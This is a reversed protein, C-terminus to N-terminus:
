GCEGKSILSELQAKNEEQRMHDVLISGAAKFETRRRWIECLIEKALRRAIDDQDLMPSVDFSPPPRNYSSGATGTEVRLTVSMPNEGRKCGDSTRVEGHILAIGHTSAMGANRLKNLIKIRKKRWQDMEDKSGALELCILDQAVLEDASDPLLDHFKPFTLYEEAIYYNTLEPLRDLKRLHDLFHQGMVNKTCEERQIDTDELFWQTMLRSDPGLCWSIIRPTPFTGRWSKSIINSVVQGALQVRRTGSASAFDGLFAPEEGSVFPFDESVDSPNGPLHTPRLQLEEAYTRGAVKDVQRDVSVNYLRWRLSRPGDVPKPLEILLLYKHEGENARSIPLLGRIKPNAKLYGSIPVLEPNEGDNNAWGTTESPYGKTWLLDQDGERPVFAVAESPVFARFILATQANSRWARLKGPFTRDIAKAIKEIAALQICDAKTPAHAGRPTQIEGGFAEQDTGCRKRDDPLQDEMAANSANEFGAVILVSLVQNGQKRIWLSDDPLETSLYAEARRILRILARSTGGDLKHIMAVVDGDQDVVASGSEGYTTTRDLECNNSRGGLECNREFLKVPLMSSEVPIYPNQRMAEFNQFSTRYLAAETKYLRSADVLRLGDPREVNPDDLKLLAYDNRDGAARSGPTLRFWRHTTTSEAHEDNTPPAIAGLVCATDFLDGFFLRHKFTHKATLVFGNERLFFGTALIVKRKDVAADYKCREDNPIGALVKILVTNRRVRDEVNPRLGSDAIAPEWAFSLSVAFAGAACALGVGRRGRIGRVANSLSRLLFLRVETSPNGSM